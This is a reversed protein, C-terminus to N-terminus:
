LGFVLGVRESIVHGGVSSFLAHGYSVNVDFAVKPRLYYKLGANPEVLSSDKPSRVSNLSYAFSVYPVTKVGPQTFNYRFSVGLGAGVDTGALAQKSISLGVSGFLEVRQTFYYGLGANVNGATSSTGAGGGFASTVNGNLLVEKDGQDAQAFASTAFLTLV